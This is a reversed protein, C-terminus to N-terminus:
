RRSASASSRTSRGRVVRRAAALATDDGMSSIPEHGNSAAPRLVLTLDERTYGALVHRARLDGAPPLVPEGAALERRGVALWRLYPRRAALTRKVDEDLEVGRGAADVALMEGPGLKGRRVRADHPLPIAGAESACAVLGDDTIAYRLPRLGNRDVAAGVVRGDTFVVGAPGDWPEILGAHYRHFARVGPDLEPDNQWAPPLLMSMAHRVDRGGRTLLEVANDLMASDSGSEDLVPAPLGDGLRSERARMWAINGRLTNIEGNHCLLRFPQAREWSPSTNTSFRQHFIAFPVELTQDRLDAYFADLQDAACLAKYTVTRFSLSAVYAGRVREARRRARYARAEAEDPGLGFPRVLVLQEIRPMTALASDGLADRDVPVKRWGALGIGEAECAAEIGARAADDRLFVMALGCWPGPVLAPAIPLLVGAGDGTKRDAAVAGRHRMRRLGELSRDLIERSPRAHLDAVFGIGCSDLETRDTPNAM